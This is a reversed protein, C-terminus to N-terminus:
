RQHSVARKEGPETERLWARVVEIQEPVMLSPAHGVGPIKVVQVEANGERMEQATRASLLDSEAGRLVLVPCRVRQWVPWLVVDQAPAQRFSAGIAPDYHLAFGGDPLRRVSHEALRRWLEPGLPGFRAHVRRLYAEAEEVSGFRPADGVYAAIREVAAAPLFPGVDNLILRRVPSGPQAALMMGILGGM